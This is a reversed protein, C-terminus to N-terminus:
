VKMFRPVLIYAIIKLVALSGFKTSSKGAMYFENEKHQLSDCQIGFAATAIVDNTYRTFIDKMEVTVVGHETQAENLFYNTFQEACETILTYMARMKSSTFAPSLTSRMDKWKQGEIFCRSYEFCLM